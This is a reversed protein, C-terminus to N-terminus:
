AVRYALRKAINIIYELIQLYLCIIDVATCDTYQPIVRRTGEAIAKNIIKDDVDTLNSVLKVDYGVYELFRRLTDFVIPPRINGVHADGYVTPGCCYISVENPKITKLEEVKNTLSNFLKVEM